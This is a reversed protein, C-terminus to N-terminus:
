AGREGLKGGVSFYHGYIKWHQHALGRFRAPTERENFHYSIHFLNPSRNICRTLLNVATESGDGLGSCQETQLMSRPQTADGWRWTKDSWERDVACIRLLEKRSSEDMDNFLKRPSEYAMFSYSDKVAFFTVTLKSIWPALDKCESAAILNKFSHASRLDFVTECAVRGFCRWSCGRMTRSVLRHALLRRALSTGHEIEEQSRLTEHGNEEYTIPSKVDSVVELLIKELLETPLKEIPSIGALPLFPSTAM